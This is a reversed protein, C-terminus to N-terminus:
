HAGNSLVSTNVTTHQLTIYATVARRPAPHAVPEERRTVAALPERVRHPARERRAQLALLAAVLLAGDGHADVRGAM